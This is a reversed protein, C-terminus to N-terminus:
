GTRMEIRIERYRDTPEQNMRVIWEGKKPTRRTNKKERMRQGTDAVRRKGMQKNDARVLRGAEPALVMKLERGFVCRVSVAYQQKRGQEAM